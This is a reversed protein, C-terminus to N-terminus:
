QRASRVRTRMTPASDLLRYGAEIASAMGAIGVKGNLKYTGFGIASLTADNNLAITPVDARMAIKMRKTQMPIQDPSVLRSVGREAFLKALTKPPM